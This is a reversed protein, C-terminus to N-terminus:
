SSCAGSELVFHSLREVGDVGRESEGV